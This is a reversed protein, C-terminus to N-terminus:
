QAEPPDQETREGEESTQQPPRSASGDSIGIPPTPTPRHRIPGPGPTPVFAVFRRDFGAEHRGPAPEVLPEPGRRTRNESMPIPEPLVCRALFTSWQM